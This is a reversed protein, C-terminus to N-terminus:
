QLRQCTLEILDEHLAQVKDELGLMAINRRFKDILCEEIEIGVSRCGYQKTAELCIRGDGCGLDFLVSDKSPKALKIIENVVSLDAQCPPALSDGELWFGNLPNEEDEEDDSYM